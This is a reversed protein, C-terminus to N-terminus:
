KLKVRRALEDLEPRTRLPDLVPETLLYAIGGSQSRYSDELARIAADHDGLGIYALVRYEPPIYRRPARQNLEALHRLALERNGALGAAHAILGNLLPAGAPLLRNALEYHALASDYQQLAVFALGIGAHATVFNPRRELTQRYAAVSAQFQRAFYLHRAYSTAVVPSEPDRDRAITIAARAENMRGQTALFLSYWHNTQADNPDLQLAQKFEREAGVWDYDYNFLATALAAHPGPLEPDLEIARLAASKAQPYADRPALVGYDYAGLIIYTDAIGAHALAYTSDERVANKFHALANALRQPTRDFFDPRGRWYEERARQNLTGQKVLRMPSQNLEHALSDRIAGAIREQVVTLNQLDWAEDFVGSWRRYGSEPDILNAKVNLRGGGTKVSGELVYDVRLREAIDKVDSDRLLYTSNFSPVYLGEIRSLANSIEESLGIGFYELTDSPLMNRFPLVAIGSGTRAASPGGAPKSSLWVILSVAAILTIALLLISRAQRLHLTQRRRPTTRRAPSPAAAIEPLPTVAAATPEVPVLARTTPPAASVAPPAARLRESLAVIEADPEASFEEQLLLTHVRAHQLAGARDGAAELALMLERAIRANYPDVSALRRWMEVAGRLDGSQQRAVASRELATAYSRALRERESEVWQDLEADDTGFFGDMFPGDYLLVADHPRNERLAAEFEDIDTSVVAPNLAIDDGRSLVGEEGLARRLEHLSVSLLHRAREASTEPWLLGILKDRSLTRGPALALRALLALRRKQVARGSLPGKPSVLAVGGLLKLKFVPQFAPSLFSTRFVRDIYGVFRQFGAM